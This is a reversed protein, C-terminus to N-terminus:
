PRVSDRGSDKSNSGGHYIKNTDKDNIKKYYYSSIDIKYRRGSKIVMMVRHSCTLDDMLREVASM